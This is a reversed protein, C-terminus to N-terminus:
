DATINDKAVFCDNSSMSLDLIALLFQCLLNDLAIQVLTQELNRRSIDRFAHKVAAQVVQNQPSKKYDIIAAEM